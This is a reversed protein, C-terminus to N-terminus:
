LYYDSDSGYSNEEEDKDGDSKEVVAPESRPSTDPEKEVICNSKSKELSRESTMREPVASLRDSAPRESVASLRESAPRGPLTPLSRHPTVLPSQDPLSRFAQSQEALNRRSVAQPQETLTRQSVAQSQEALNRQSVAQSGSISQESLGRPLSASTEQNLTRQSTETPSPEGLSRQSLAPSQEINRMSPVREAKPPASDKESTASENLKLSGRQSLRPSVSDRTLDSSSSPQLPVRKASPGPSVAKDSEQRTLTRFSDSLRKESVGPSLSTDSNYRQLGSSVGGPPLAKKYAPSAPSKAAESFDTSMSVSRTRLQPVPIGAIFLAERLVRTDNELASIRDMLVRELLSLQMVLWRENDTL